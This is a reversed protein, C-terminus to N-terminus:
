TRSSNKVDDTFQLFEKKSLALFDQVASEEISNKNSLQKNVFTSEFIFTRYFMIFNFKNEYLGLTEYTGAKYNSKREFKFYSMIHDDKMIQEKMPDEPSYDFRNIYGYFKSQEILKDSQDGLVQLKPM